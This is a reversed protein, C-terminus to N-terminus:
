EREKKLIEFYFKYGLDLLKLADVLEQLKGEQGYSNLNTSKDKITIILEYNEESM